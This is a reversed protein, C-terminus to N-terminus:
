EIENNIIRMYVEGSDSNGNGSTWRTGWLPITDNDAGHPLYFLTSVAFADGAELSHIACTSDTCNTNELFHQQGDSANIRVGTSVNSVLGPIEGSIAMQNITGTAWNDSNTDYKVGLTMDGNKYPDSSTAMLGIPRNNTSNDRALFCGRDFSTACEIPTSGLQLGFGDNSANTAKQYSWYHNGELQQGTDGVTYRTTDNSRKDVNSIMVGLYSQQDDRTTSGGAGDYTDQISLQAQLGVGKGTPNLVQYWQSTGEPMENSGGFRSTHIHQNVDLVQEAWDYNNAYTNCTSADNGVAACYDPGLTKFDMSSSSYFGSPFFSPYFFDDNTGSALHNEIPILNLAIIRKNNNTFSNYFADTYVQSALTVQDLYTHYNTSPFTNGGGLTADDYVSLYAYM